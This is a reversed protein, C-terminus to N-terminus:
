PVITTFGDSAMIKQASDLLINVLEETLEEERQELVQALEGKSHAVILEESLEVFYVGDFEKSAGVHLKAIESVKEPVGRKQAEKKLTDWFTNHNMQNFNKQILQTLAKKNKTTLLYSILTKTKM